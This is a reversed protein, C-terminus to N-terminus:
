TSPPSHTPGAYIFPGCKRFEPFTLYSAPGKSLYRLRFYEWSSFTAESLESSARAESGIRRQDEERIRFGDLRDGFHGPISMVM